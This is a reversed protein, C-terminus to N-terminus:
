FQYNLQLMLTRARLPLYTGPRLQVPDRRDFMNYVNVALTTNKFGRYQGWFDVTTDAAIQCDGAAVGREACGEVTNNSDLSGWSLTTASTHYVRLGTSWDGKDWTTKIVANTRPVGRHGVYNETYTSAFSDWSRYDLQRNLELAAKLQGWSGLSWRSTVDLDVGSVRTKGLNQYQAAITRIPGTAFALPKGALESARQALEIDQSTLPDRQVLGAIRDENALTEDVNRSAIEDRRRINYYDLTLSVERIPQLVFGLTFSRSKEPKLGPNPTVAAPFSVSCGLAYATLASNKDVTDGKNLADRMATATACRKPDVYGNNFWSAGGNGTEPLSPARFGESATGRLLLMDNAKYKLGLKPVVAGAEGIARDGRVAFNASFKKTLPADIEAFLAALNRAGAISVGSFQVIQAALVNDSSAHEFSEHRLDAGVALQLDGGDLPMLARSGKLDAFVQTYKGHSGFEPFMKNLLEPSNQQGFKYAGSVIADTYAYRDRYLHQKQQAHSGMAGVATDIDWGFASGEVGALLRYQSSSGVNKFMDPYDNFRYNLGIPFSFPNNPHGVPLKPDTFSQMQGTMSDYWNLAVGNVNSRPAATHYDDRTQALQLEVYGTMTDSLKKRAGALFTLRDAPPRADSDQWYDYFCLGGTLLEPPCGPAAMNISKGAKSADAYNAPYRGVYNGPVSGTSRANRDPNQEIFWDPLLPRIARDKYGNRHFAELHAFANYGDTDLNGSGFTLAAKQEADLLHSRMSQQAVAKIGIGRLDRRTIINIVGAIADSGYVASAGDKLIELREIVDSPISDINVFNLQLGDAFGYASLRRGNLLVLTASTGLNRLSVGSAGSAWSNAGGLDSIAGHDNSTLNGLIEGVTQAGSQTIEHRSVIQVPSATETDVRKINSGTVVVREIAQDSQQALVLQPAALALAVAIACPKRIATAKM